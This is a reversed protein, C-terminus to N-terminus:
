GDENESQMSSQCTPFIMVFTTGAGERSDVRITGGHNRVIGYVISLGMGTGEGEQKTTFFPDFIHGRESEPIGVGTDGIKVVAKNEAENLDCQISLHGGDPMAEIANFILNLFCQQMQNVDGYIIVPAPHYAAEV